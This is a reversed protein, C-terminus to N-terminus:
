EREVNQASSSMWDDVAQVSSDISQYLLLTYGEVSNLPEEGGFRTVILGLRNSAATRIAPITYRLHNDPTKEASLEVVGGEGFAFRTSKGEGDDVLFLIRVDLETAADFELTLPQGKAVPDLLVDFLDTGAGSPAEVGLEQAVDAYAVTLVSPDAYADHPDHFGCGAPIGPETCRGGQVRLAYIARSFAILSEKYGQFPCSSGAFARDLVEPTARVLDSSTSVDV